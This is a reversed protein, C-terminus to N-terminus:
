GRHRNLAAYVDLAQRTGAVDHVRVYQAGRTVAWLMAALSAADRHSPEEVGVIDGLFRKRSVGVLLPFGMGALGELQALLKANQEPTKAFGFGPDIVIRQEEIGCEHLYKLRQTLEQRIQDFLDDYDTLAMMNKPTGRSHMLVVRLQYQRAVAVLEPDSRFSSVDNIWDVREFDLIKALVQSRTTDISIPIKSYRRIGRVIPLVRELEQEVSIPEAGPRSSAGGIDIVDAGAEILECARKVLFAGSGYTGGDSFSDPSANVIGMIKVGPSM